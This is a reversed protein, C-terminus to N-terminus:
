EKPNVKDDLEILQVAFANWLCQGCFYHGCTSIWVTDKRGSLGQVCVYCLDERKKLQQAM